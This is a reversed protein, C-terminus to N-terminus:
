TGTDCQPRGTLAVTRQGPEQAGIEQGRAYFRAFDGRCAELLDLFAAVKDGYLSVSLLRANNIDGDFWPDYGPYGGWTEKLAEHSRRMNALVEAKRRRMQDDGEDGEYIEALAERTWRVLAVFEQRIRLYRQYGKIQAQSGQSALWRQVGAQQVAVAFSENFSTDGDIYLRQHALEHFIVGAMSAEGRDVVTNLLPDDFWGLTSYAAAGGVHVDWGEGALRRAYKWADEERFYGRYAVCGAVPFCWQKPTLSLEPVAFVNWTVVDRGIDVYSRYSGNDPLSLERSGFERLDRARALRDALEPSTSADAIVADVPERRSMIDMHGSVAQHYYAFHSCAGFGLTSAALLMMVGIRRTFRGPNRNRPHRHKCPM